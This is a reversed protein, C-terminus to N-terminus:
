PAGAEEQDKERVWVGEQGAATGGPHMPTGHQVLAVSLMRVWLRCRETRGGGGDNEGWRSTLVGMLAWSNSSAPCSVDQPQRM